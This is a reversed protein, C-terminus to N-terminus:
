NSPCAMRNRSDKYVIRTKDSTTGDGISIILYRGDETVGGGITWEPHDPREYVLRGSSQPTGLRHYYLKQSANTAQFTEGKEPAPFRSYFFGLNDNTWSAGSFKVWELDDAMPKTAAIDLVKWTQWDSGSKSVGYALYLGNDSVAMGSLAETGDKTWNNPDLLM